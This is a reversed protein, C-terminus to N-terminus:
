VYRVESECIIHMCRPMVQKLDAEVTALAKDLGRLFLEDITVVSENASDLVLTAVAQGAVAHRHLSVGRLAM